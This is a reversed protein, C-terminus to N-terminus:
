KVVKMLIKVNKAKMKKVNKVKIKKRM